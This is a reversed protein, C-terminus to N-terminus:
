AGNRAPAASEATDPPTSRMFLLTLTDAAQRYRQKMKDLHERAEGRPYPAELLGSRQLGRYVEMARDLSLPVFNGYRKRLADDQHLLHGPARRFFRAEWMNQLIAEFYAM